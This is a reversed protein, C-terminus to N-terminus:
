VLNHQAIVANTTVAFRTMGASIIVIGLPAASIDGLHASMQAIFAIKLTVDVMIVRQTLVVTKWVPTVTKAKQEKVYEMEVCGCATPLAYKNQKGLNAYGM